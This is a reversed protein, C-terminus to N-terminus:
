LAAIWAEIDERVFRVNSPSVRKSPIKGDRAYRWVTKPHMGLMYGVDAATLLRTIKHFESPTETTTTDMLPLMPVRESM